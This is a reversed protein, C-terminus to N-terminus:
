TRVQEIGTVPRDSVLAMYDWMTAAIRFGSMLPITSPLPIPQAALEGLTSVWDRDQTARQSGGTLAYVFM